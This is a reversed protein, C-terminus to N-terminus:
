AGDERKADSDTPRVGERPETTAATLREVATQADLNGKDAAQRYLALARARDESVGEGHEHAKGLRCLRTCGAWITRPAPTGKTPRRAIGARPRM